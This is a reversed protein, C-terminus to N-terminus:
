EKAFCIPQQGFMPLPMLSVVKCAATSSHCLVPLYRGFMPVKVRTHKVEKRNNFYTSKQIRENGIAVNAWM